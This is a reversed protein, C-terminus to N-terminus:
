VSNFCTGFIGIVENFIEELFEIAGAFIVDIPFVADKIKVGM